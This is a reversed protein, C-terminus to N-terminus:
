ELDIGLLKLKEVLEKTNFVEILSQRKFHLDNSWIHCNLKLGLALYSTDDKDPISSNAQELFSEFSKEPVFSIREKILRLLEEIEDSSFSSLKLIRPKHENLEELLQEPSYLKLGKLFLIKKTIGFGTLGTFVIGADIVLEM